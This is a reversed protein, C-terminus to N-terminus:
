FPRAFRKLDPPLRSATFDIMEYSVAGNGTSGWAPLRLNGFQRLPGFVYVYQTTGWVIPEKRANLVIWGGVTGDPGVFELRQGRGNFWANPGHRVRYSPDEAAVARALRVFHFPARELYRALDDKAGVKTVGTEIEWVGHEPSIGRQYDLIESRMEIWSRPGTLDLIENEVYTDLRTDISWRHVFHVSKVQAWIDRGGMADVMALADEVAAADSRPLAGHTQGLLPAGELGVALVLGSIAWAM